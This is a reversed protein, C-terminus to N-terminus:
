FLIKYKKKKLIPTLISKAGSTSYSKKGCLVFIKKYSKDKLYNELDQASSLLFNNM